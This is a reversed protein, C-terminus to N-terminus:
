MEKIVLSPLCKIKHKKAMQIEEKSFIKNLETAWKIVPENIKPFSPKKLEM